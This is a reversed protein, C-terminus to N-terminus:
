GRGPVRLDVGRVVGDLPVGGGDSVAVAGDTRTGGTVSLSWANKRALGESSADWVGEPNSERRTQSRNGLYGAQAGEHAKVGDKRAKTTVQFLHGDQWIPGDTVAQM